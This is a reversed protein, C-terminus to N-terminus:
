IDSIEHRETFLHLPNPVQADDDNYGVLIKSAKRLLEDTECEFPNGWM